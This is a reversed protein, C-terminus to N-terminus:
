MQCGLKLHKREVLYSAEKGYPSKMEQHEYGNVYHDPFSKRFIEGMQFSMYKRNGWPQDADILRQNHHHIPTGDVIVACPTLNQRLISAIMKEDLPMTLNNRLKYMALERREAYSTAMSCFTNDFGWDVGLIHLPWLLRGIVQSLYFELFHGNFVPTQMEIFRTEHAIVGPHAKWPMYNFYWYIQTNESVLPQAIIPAKDFACHLNRLFRPIDFGHLFIDGDFFWVYDYTSAIPILNMLLMPKPFFKTNYPHRNLAEEITMSRNLKSSAFMRDDFVGYRDLIKQRDMAYDFLVIKHGKLDVKQLAREAAHALQKSGRFMIIAWHCTGNPAVIRHHLTALQHRNGEIFTVCLLPLSPKTMIGNTLSDEELYDDLLRDIDPRYLPKIPYELSSNLISQVKVNGDLTPNLSVDESSSLSSKILFVLLILMILSARQAWAVM